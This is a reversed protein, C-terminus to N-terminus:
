LSLSHNSLFPVTPSPSTLNNINVLTKLSAPACVRKTLGFGGVAWPPALTAMEHEGQRLKIDGGFKLAGQMIGYFCFYRSVFNAVQISRHM